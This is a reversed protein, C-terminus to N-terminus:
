PLGADELVFAWRIGRNEAVVRVRKLKDNANLTAVPVLTPPVPLGLPDFTDPGTYDLTKKDAEVGNELTLTVKKTTKDYVWTAKNAYGKKFAVKTMGDAMHDRAVLGNDGPVAFEFTYGATNADSTAQYTAVVLPKVSGLPRVDIECKDLVQKSLHVDQKPPVPLAMSAGVIAAVVGAM